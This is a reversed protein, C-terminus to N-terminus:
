KKLATIFIFQGSQVLKKKKAIFRLINTLAFRKCERKQGELSFGKKVQEKSSVRCYLITKM